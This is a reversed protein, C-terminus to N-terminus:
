ASEAGDPAAAPSEEDLAELPELPELLSDMILVNGRRRRAALWGVLLAGALLIAWGTGLVGSAVKWSEGAFVGVSIYLIAWLAIGAADFALFRLYTMGSLGATTPMLTRVFSVTRALTVSVFPKKGYFRHTVARYRGFFRSAFGDGHAAASGRRGLWFGLSDGVLAGGVSAAVVGEWALIGESSLFAGLSLAVGAPVLLGLPISTELAAMVFLLLPGLRLLLEISPTM